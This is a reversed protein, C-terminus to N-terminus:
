VKTTHSGGGGGAAGDHEYKKMNHTEPSMLDLHPTRPQTKPAMINTKGAAADYSNCVGQSDAPQNSRLAQPEIEENYHDSINYSNAANPHKNNNLHQFHEYFKVSVIADQSEDSSSGEPIAIHTPM